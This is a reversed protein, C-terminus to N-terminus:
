GRIVAIAGLLGLTFLALLAVGVIRFGYRIGRTDRSM